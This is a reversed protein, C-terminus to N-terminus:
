GFFAFLGSRSCCSSSTRGALIFYKFIPLASHRFSGDTAETFVSSFLSAILARVIALSNKLIVVHGIPCEAQCPLAGSSVM